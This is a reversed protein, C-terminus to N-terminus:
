YTGVSLMVLTCGEVVEIGLERARREFAAHETGPNFVIRRPRLALIAEHWAEQVVPNMYVTVTDVRIGLPITHEITHGQVTGDRRGVLIVPHGHALLHLTAKHAYRDPNPSAGLVLTSKASM